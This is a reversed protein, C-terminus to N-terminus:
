SFLFKEYHIRNREVGLSRLDRKVLFMMRPPGCIFFQSDQINSILRKLKEANVFGKEGQWDDQNSMVHIIKIKPTENAMKELEEKFGIDNGTKNGWILTVNRDLKKDYIYRLMSIFPTVGIGGAIFVLNKSDHNLFTFRGYPADIYAKDSIKTYPITSTFDGVSKVSISIKDSTPSSSITFPHSESVKGNRVLNIIMFQGPKYDFKRGEFYLSTVDHTEKIVDAVKFPHSRIYAWNWIKYIIIIVYVGALVFWFVKLPSWKYLDSGLFISHLFAIPFLIYNARHINKWVEYKMRLKVYLLAVGASILLIILAITGLAKFLSSYGDLGNYIFLLVPHSLVLILGLIGVKRHIVFLKDLGLPKEIFKIKSSLVYQIFILIFGAISLYRSANYLHIKFNVAKQPETKIAEPQESITQQEVEPPKIDETKAVVVPEEQPEIKNEVNAPKPQEQTDIKKEPKSEPDGPNTEAAFEEDNTFGDGDSDIKGLEETYKDGAKLAFDEYDKGFPNLPGGNGVHCTRCNFNEGKDPLKDLRFPRGWVGLVLLLLLIIFICIKLLYKNLMNTKSM